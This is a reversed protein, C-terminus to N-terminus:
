SRVLGASVREEFDGLLREMRGRGEVGFAAEVGRGALRVVEGRELGFERAAIFYENSLASEFVGVDDTGLAVPCQTEIWEGFHHGKFGGQTM